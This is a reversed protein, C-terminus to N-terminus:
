NAKFITTKLENLIIAYFFKDDVEMLKKQVLLFTYSKMFQNVAAHGHHRDSYIKIYPIQVVAM